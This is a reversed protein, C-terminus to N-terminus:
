AFIPPVIIGTQFANESASSRKKLMWTQDQIGQPFPSPASERKPRGCSGTYNFPGQATVYYEPDIRLRFVSTDNGSSLIGTTFRGRRLPGM